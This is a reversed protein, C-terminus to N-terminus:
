ARLASLPRGRGKAAAEGLMLATGSPADVKDRHHMEVVEIDWDEGLAATAKTVLAALMTIGLSTNATQLVAIHGSANDVARLQADSLGTTGIVIGCKASLAADLNAALADPTTFDVLVDSQHALSSTNCSITLDGSLAEGMAPHGAREAAGALTAGPTRGVEAIIARGMRGGAGLVGIRSTM